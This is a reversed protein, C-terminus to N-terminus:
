RRLSAIEAASRGPTWTAARLDLRRRTTGILTGHLGRRDVALGPLEGVLLEPQAVPCPKASHPRHKRERGDPHGDRRDGQYQQEAGPVRAEVGAEAHARRDRHREAEGVRRRLV